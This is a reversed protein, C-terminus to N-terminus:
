KQLGKGADLLEKCLSKEAKTSQRTAQKYDEMFQAAISYGRITTWLQIMDKLLTSSESHTLDITLLSWAFKVDEDSEVMRLLEEKSSNSRNIELQKRLLPYLPLELELFFCYM